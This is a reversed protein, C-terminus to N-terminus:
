GNKQIKEHCPPILPTFKHFLKSYFEWISIELILPFVGLISPKYHFVRNFYKKQPTGHNKSVGLDSDLANQPSTERIGLCGVGGNVTPM